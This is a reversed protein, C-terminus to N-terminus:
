VKREDTKIGNIYTTHAVVKNSKDILGDFSKFFKKNKGLSSSVITVIKNHFINEKLYGLMFASIKGAWVPSVLIVEDYKDFDVVPSEFKVKRKAIVVFSYYLVKFLNTKFPKHLDDIEFHDGEFQNAITRCKQSKTMSFFIIAKM